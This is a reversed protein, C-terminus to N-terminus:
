QPMLRVIALLVALIVVAVAMGLVRPFTPWRIAPVPSPLEEPLPTFGAGSTQMQPDGFPLWPASAAFGGEWAPGACRDAPRLRRRLRVAAGWSLALLVSVPLAAYGRGGPAVVVGLLGARPGLSAGLVEHIAPNVLLRLLPGVFTGLAISAGALCLLPTTAPRALPKAAAARPTRPRGLCVVGILRVLAVVSLAAGLALSSAAILLVAQLAPSAAQIEALLAQFVLWFLAFGPGPPVAALGFSGVLLCGACVPMTHIMGGLRTLHKTAAGHHIARACLAGLTGCVAQVAAAVLVAALALVSVQPLDLTRAVVALGLATATIGAHRATGATLIDGLTDKRTARIGGILVAAVGPLLLAVGCWAPLPRGTLASPVRLLAYFALPTGAGELLASGAPATAEGAGSLSRHVPALGALPALCLILAIWNLAALADPSRVWGAAAFGVPGDDARQLGNVAVVAAAGLLTPLLISRAADTSPNDTRGAAWTTGGALALGAAFVLADGALAVLGMAALAVVMAALSAPSGTRDAATAHLVAATGISFVLLAFFESLPDLLLRFQSGPLGIPLGLQTPGDGAVLTVLVLTAALGSLAAGGFGVVARARSRLLTGGAGLLLLGALIVALLTLVSGNM